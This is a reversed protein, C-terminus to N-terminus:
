LQGTTMYVAAMNQKLILDIETCGNSQIFTMSSKAFVLM